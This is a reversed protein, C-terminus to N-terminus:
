EGYPNKPNQGFTGSATYSAQGVSLMWHGDDDSALAHSSVACLAFAVIGEILYKM